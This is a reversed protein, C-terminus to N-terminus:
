QLLWGAALPGGNHGADNRVTGLSPPFSTDFYEPDPDGADVCPSGPLISLHAYSLSNGGFQPPLDFNGTGAHGGEVDSYTVALPGAVPTVFPLSAACPTANGFSPHSFSQCVTNEYLVSSQVVAVGALWPASIGPHAAWTGGSTPISDGKVSLNRAVTCNTVLLSDAAQGQVYLAAGLTDNLRADAWARNGALISGRVVVAVDAGPSEVYLGAGFANAGDVISTGWATARNGRLICRTLLASTDALFVGGGRAETTATCGNCVGLCENGEVLTDVLDVFGAGAVHIGGGHSEDNFSQLPPRAANRTISCGSMSLTGTGMRASLGGGDGGARNGDLACDVLVLDLSALDARLGGGSGPTSNDRLECDVLTVLSEEIRVGSSAAREIRTHTLASAGEASRFFLGDWRQGAGLSRFVVPAAATGKTTLSGSVLIEVGPLARVEVGAEVVLTQVEVDAAALYPSSARTWVGAVPGAVVTARPAPQALGAPGASQATQAPSTSVFLGFFLTALALSRM